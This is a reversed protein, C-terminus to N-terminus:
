LLQFFLSWDRFGTPVIRLHLQQSIVIFIPQLPFHSEFTITSHCCYLNIPSSIATRSFHNSKSFSFFPISVSSSFRPRGLIHHAHGGRGEEFFVNLPFPVYIRLNEFVTMWVLIQIKFCCFFTLSLLSTRCM